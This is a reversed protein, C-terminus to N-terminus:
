RRYRPHYAPRHYVPRHYAFRRHFAPRAYSRRAVYGYYRSRAVGTRRFRRAAYSHYYRHSPYAGSSRGGGSPTATLAELSLKNLQDATAQARAPGPPPLLCGALLALFLFRRM